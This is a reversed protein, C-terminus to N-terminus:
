WRNARDWPRPKPPPDSSGSAPATNIEKGCEPCRFLFRKETDELMVAPPFHSRCIQYGFKVAIDADVEKMKRDISEISDKLAKKKDNTPLSNIVDRVLGIAGRLAGIIGGIDSPEM